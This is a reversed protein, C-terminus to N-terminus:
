MLMWDGYFYDSGYEKKNKKKNKSATVEKELTLLYNKDTGEGAAKALMHQDGAAAHPETTHKISRQNLSSILCM